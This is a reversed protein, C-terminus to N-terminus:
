KLHLTNKQHTDHYKSALFPLVGIDVVSHFLRGDLWVQSDVGILRSPDVEVNLTSHPRKHKADDVWRRIQILLTVKSRNHHLRCATSYANAATKRISPLLQPHRKWRATICTSLSASNNNTFAHNSNSNDASYYFL